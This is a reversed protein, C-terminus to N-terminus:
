SSLKEILDKFESFRNELQNADLLELLQTGHNVKHYTGKKTNKTLKMLVKDPEKIEQPNKKPIKTSIKTAYFEDLIQPQSLFWAEMEQIMYFVVAKDSELQYKKLDKTKESPPSDLDVLLHKKDSQSSKRFKKIAITKGEAMIIKPMNGALKQQLLKSFGQRLKGNSQNSTGEIFLFCTKNKDKM